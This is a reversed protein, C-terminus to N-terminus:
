RTSAIGCGESAASTLKPVGTDKTARKGAKAGRPWEIKQVMIPVLPGVALRNCPHGNM